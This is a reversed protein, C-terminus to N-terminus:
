QVNKLIVCQNGRSRFASEFQARDYSVIGEIPDAVTVSDASYGILVVCHDNMAWSAERGDETNWSEMIQREEMGITGWVVAGCSLGDTESQPNGIFYNYIDNGYLTENDGYYTNTWGVTPLYELAMAMKDASYGYYNLAMTLSTIECGTPLEPMQGTFAFDSICSSEPLPTEKVIEANKIKQTKATTKEVATVSQRAGKIQELKAEIYTTDKLTFGVIVAGVLIGAAVAIWKAASRIQM